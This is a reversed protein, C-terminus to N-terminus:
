WNASCISAACQCFAAISAMVAARRNWKAQVRASAFFSKGDVTIEPGTEAARNEPTDPVSAITSALWFSGAAFAFLASLLNFLFTM